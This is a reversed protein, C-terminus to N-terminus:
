RKKKKTKAAKEKKKKKPKNMKGKLRAIEKDLWQMEESNCCAKKARTYIKLSDKYSKQTERILALHALLLTKNTAPLRLAFAILREAAELEDMGILLKVFPPYIAVDKVDAELAKEFYSKALEFDQLKEGYFRGILCLVKSNNPEYYYAYRLAEATEELDYSFYELAKIYHINDILEM